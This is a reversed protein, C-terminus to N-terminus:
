KIYVEWNGSLVASLTISGEDHDHKGNHNMAADRSMMELKTANLMSPVVMSEEM